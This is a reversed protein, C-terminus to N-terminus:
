VADKSRGAKSMHMGQKGPSNQKRDPNETESEERDKWTHRERRAKGSEKAHNHKGIVSSPSSGPDHM